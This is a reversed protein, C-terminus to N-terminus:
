SAAFNPLLMVTSADLAVGVVRTVTGAADALKGATNSLYCKAGPTMGAFGNVAGVIVVSVADGSAFAVAGSTGASVVVGLALATGAASASAPQVRGNSDVYVADGVNGSAGATFTRVLAGPLPRVSRATVSIDAM